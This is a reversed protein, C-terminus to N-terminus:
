LASCVRSDTTCILFIRSKERMKDGYDTYDAYDCTIEGRNCKSWSACFGENRPVPDLLDSVLVRGSIQIRM